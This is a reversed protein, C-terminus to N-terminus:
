KEKRFYYYLGLNLSGYSLNFSNKGLSTSLDYLYSYRISGITAEFGWKPSPFFLFSPEIRSSIQYIQRKSQVNSNTNRVIGNEANVNGNLSFIFKDSVSFYRSAIVGLTFSQSNYNIEFTQGKNLTTNAYSYGIQGGLAFKENLLYGVTPYASFVKVESMSSQILTTPTEFSLRFTGGIFRDGKSFQGSSALPALVLLTLLHKKM